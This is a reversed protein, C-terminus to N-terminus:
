ARGTLFWSFHIRKGSNEIALGAWFAKRVLRSKMARCVASFRKRLEAIAESQISAIFDHLVALHRRANTDSPTQLVEEPLVPIRMPTPPTPQFRESVVKHLAEEKFVMISAESLHPFKAATKTQINPSLSVMEAPLCKNLDRTKSWNPMENLLFKDRLTRVEECLEFSETDFRGTEVHDEVLDDFLDTQRYPPGREQIFIQFAQSNSLEEKFRKHDSQSLFLERQLKTQITPHIRSFQIASRYNHLIRVKRM